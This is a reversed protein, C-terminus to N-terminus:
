ANQTVLVPSAWTENYYNTEQLVRRAKFLARDLRLDTLLNEYFALALQRAEIDWVNWRYGLVGPIGTRVLGEVIGQFDDGNLKVHAEATTKAGVCCSLYFFRTDSRRLLNKLVHIPMSRVGGSKNPGEWFFLGSEDSNREHHFGHGAYHVIHYKCGNLSDYINDYSAEKTPIIQVDCDFGRSCFLGELTRSLLDIERDVEPISPRTNSGILLVKVPSIQEFFVRSIGTKRITTVGDICRVLPNEVIMYGTEGPLLEMPLRLLNQSGRFIIHLKDLSSRERNDLYDSERERATALCRTLEPDNEIIQEYLDKGIRQARDRWRRREDENDADFHFQLDDTRGAFTDVDIGLVNTSDFAFGTPGFLEIRTKQGLSLGFRLTYMNQEYQRNRELLVKRLVKRAAERMEQEVFGRGGSGRKLVIADESKVLFEFAGHQLAKIAREQTPFGTFVVPGCPLGTDERLKCIDELLDLGDEEGLVIDIVALDFQRRGLWDRVQALNAVPQVTHGEEQLVETILDRWTPEDDVVLTNIPM